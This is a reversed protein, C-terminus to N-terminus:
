DNTESFPSPSSARDQKAFRRELADLRAKLRANEAELARIRDESMQSRDEVKKNLGQIAALAVGDADVTSITKDSEGVGFAAAFDQAMPGIHRISPEQAKYNWTAIPLAAVKDLVVRADVPEANDKGNRDSMSSWSGSGAPLEVGTSPAVGSYLWYGGTARVVFQNDGWAAIEADTTDGWVFSGDGHANARRGAAFSYAGGATNLFGGPITAYQNTAANGFGGGITSGTRNVLNSIGGSVTTGDSFSAVRNWSGGAITSNNAYTQITNNAGGGITSSIPNTQITNGHGGGITCDYAEPHITNLVGGGITSQFAHTQITNSWGGGITCLGADTQITNYFGGGVTAYLANSLIINGAGGGIVGFGAHNTNYQGGSITSVDGHAGNHAGGSVTAWNDARNDMGGAVTAGYQARNGAGGSITAFGALAANSGNLVGGGGITSCYAGLAVFNDSHGGIVNPSAANPELRLARQGNVKFELPQNDTTGLFNLSPATGANGGLLWANSVSAGTPSAWVLNTGNFTLVQGPAPPTPTSLGQTTVSNGTVSAAIGAQAAHLAYPAPTLWQRVPFTAFGGVRNTRVAIGLWREEGLFVGAGFDLTVTFFWNTVGVSNLTLPGGVHTCNTAADYLTFEFDYLGNASPGGDTLKAQYTFATGLPSAALGFAFPLLGVACLAARLPFRFHRIVFLSHRLAAPGSATTASKPNRIQNRNRVESKPRQETTRMKHGKNM